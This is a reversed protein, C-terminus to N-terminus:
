SGARVLASECSVCYGTGFLSLGPEIACAAAPIPAPVHEEPAEDTRMAVLADAPFWVTRTELRSFPSVGPIFFESTVAVGFGGAVAGDIVGVTGVMVDSYISRLVRVASGNALQRKGKTKM